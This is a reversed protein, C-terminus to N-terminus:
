VALPGQRLARITCFIVDRTGRADVHEDLRERVSEFLAACEECSADINFELLASDSSGGGLAVRKIRRGSERILEAFYEPVALLRDSDYGLAKAHANLEAFQEIRQEMQERAPSAVRTLWLQRAVMEGAGTFDLSTEFAATMIRLVNLDTTARERLTRALDRAARLYGSQTYTHIARAVARPDDTDACAISTPTRQSEVVVAVEAKLGVEVEAKAKAHTRDEEEYAKGSGAKATHSVDGGALCEGERNKAEMRKSRADLKADLPKLVRFYYM